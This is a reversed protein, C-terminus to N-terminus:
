IRQDGRQIVLGTLAMVTVILTLMIEVGIRLNKLSLMEPNLFTGESGIISCTPVRRQHLDLMFVNM